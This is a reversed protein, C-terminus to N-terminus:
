INLCTIASHVFLFENSAVANLRRRRQLWDIEGLSRSSVPQLANEGPSIPWGESTRRPRPRNVVEFTRAPGASGFSESDSSLGGDQLNNSPGWSNTRPRPSSPPSINHVSHPTSASDLKESTADPSAAKEAKHKTNRVRDMIVGRRKFCMALIFLGPVLCYFWVFLILGAVGHGTKLHPSSLSAPGTSITIFSIAVSAIGLAYPVFLLASSVHRILPGIGNDSPSGLRFLLFVPQFIALSVPALIKHVVSTNYSRITSLPAYSGSPGPVSGSSTPSSASIMSACQSMYRVRVGTGDANVGTGLQGNGYGSWTANSASVVGAYARLLWVESVLKGASDQGGFM